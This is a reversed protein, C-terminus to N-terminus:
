NQIISVLIKSINKEFKQPLCILVFDRVPRQLVVCKFTKDLCVNNSVYIVNYGAKETHRQSSFLVHVTDKSLARTEEYSPWLNENQM